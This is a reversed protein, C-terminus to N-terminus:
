RVVAAFHEARPNADHPDSNSNTTGRHGYYQILPAAGSSQHRPALSTRSAGTVALFLVSVGVAVLTSLAVVGIEVASGLKTTAHPTGANTSM